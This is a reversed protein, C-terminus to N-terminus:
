NNEPDSPDSSGGFLFLMVNECLRPWKGGNLSAGFNQWFWDNAAAMSHGSTAEMRGVITKGRM